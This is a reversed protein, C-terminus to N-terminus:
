SIIKSFCKAKRQTLHYSRWNKKITESTLPRGSCKDYQVSVWSSKFREQWVVLRHGSAQKIFAFHFMELTETSLKVNFKISVSSSNILWQLTQLTTGVCVNYFRVYYYFVLLYVQYVSETPLVGILTKQDNFLVIMPSLILKRYQRTYM